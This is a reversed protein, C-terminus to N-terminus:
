QVRCGAPIVYIVTIPLLQFLNFMFFVFVVTKSVTFYTTMIVSIAMVYGLIFSIVFKIIINAFNFKHSVMQYIIECDFLVNLTLLIVKLASFVECYIKLYRKYIETFCIAISVGIPIMLLWILVSVVTVDWQQSVSKFLVQDRLNKSYVFMWCIIVIVMHDLLAKLVTWMISGPSFDMSFTQVFELCTAVLRTVTLQLLITQDVHRLTSKFVPLVGQVILCLSSVLIAIILTDHQVAKLREDDDIFM